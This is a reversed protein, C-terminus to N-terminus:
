YEGNDYSVQWEIGFRDTLTGYCKSFFTENLDMGVTGGDKLKNFVSKIEEINKSVVTLSINNGLILENGPFIDSFMITSGDINLRTHMVLNKSEEPLPYEPNPPTDGYTMIKPTETGFVQAYFEVAERCNGNFNIYINIAM